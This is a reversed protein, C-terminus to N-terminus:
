RLDQFASGQGQFSTSGNQALWGIAGDTMAQVKIHLRERALVEFAEGPKVPRLEEEAPPPGKLMPTEKSCLIFRGFPELFPTGQSGLITAWGEEAEVLRRCRARVLGSDSIKKPGELLELIEGDELRKVAKSSIGEGESLLTTKVMKYYLKTLQLFKDKSISKESGALHGFLKEVDKDSWKTEVISVDDIISVDEDVDEKSGGIGPLSKLLAQFADRTLTGNSKTDLKCAQSFLEDGSISGSTSSTLRECIAVAASVWLANIGLYEQRVANTRFSQSKLFATNLKGQLM